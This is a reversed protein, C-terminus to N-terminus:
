NQRPEAGPNFPNLKRTESNRNQKKSLDKKAERAKEGEVPAPLSIKVHRGPIKDTRNEPKRPDIGSRDQEQSTERDAADELRDHVRPVHIIKQEQPKSRGAQSGNIVKKRFKRPSRKVAAAQCSEAKPSVSKESVPGPQILQHPSRNGGPERTGANRRIQQEDNWEDANSQVPVM